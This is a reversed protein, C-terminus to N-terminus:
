NLSIFFLKGTALFLAFFTVIILTGFLSVLEKRSESDAERRAKNALANEHGM